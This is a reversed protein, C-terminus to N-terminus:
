IVAQESEEEFLHLKQRPISFTHEQGREVRQEVPLKALLTTNDCSSTFSSSTVSTSSSRSGRRSIRATRRGNGLQVHEPRFGAVHGDGEIEEVLGGARHEDGALRRLQAVFVNAPRTYLHEPTGVQQLVGYRMVVIRDGM